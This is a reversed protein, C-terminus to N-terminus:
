IYFMYSPICQPFVAHLRTDPFLFVLASYPQRVKELRRNCLVDVTFIRHVLYFPVAHFHDVTCALFNLPLHSFGHMDVAVFRFNVSVTTYLM